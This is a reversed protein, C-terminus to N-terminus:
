HMLIMRIKKVTRKLWANKLYPVMKMYQIWLYWRGSPNKHQWIKVWLNGSNQKSIDTVLYKRMRLNVSEDELVETIVVQRKEYNEEDFSALYGVPPVCCPDQQDAMKTTISNLLLDSLLSLLFFFSYVNVQFIYSNDNKRINKLILLIGIKKKPSFISIKFFNM